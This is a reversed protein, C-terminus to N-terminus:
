CAVLRRLWAREAEAEAAEWMEILMDPYERGDLLLELTEVAEDSIQEPNGVIDTGDIWFGLSAVWDWVITLMADCERILDLETQWEDQVPHSIEWPIQGYVKMTKTATEM